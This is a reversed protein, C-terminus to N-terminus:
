FESSDLCHPSDSYMCHRYYSPIATLIGIWNVSLLSGFMMNSYADRMSNSLLAIKEMQQQYFDEFQAHQAVLLVSTEESASKVTTLHHLATSGEDQMKQLQLVHEQVAVNAM